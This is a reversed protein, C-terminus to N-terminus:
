FGDVDRPGAGGDAEADPRRSPDEVAQRWERKIERSKRYRRAALIGLALGLLVPIWVKSYGLLLIVWDPATFEPLSWAPWPIDIDPVPLDINPWPIDFEVDPLLSRLWDFVPRLVGLLIPVLLIGALAGGGKGPGATLPYVVRKWPSAAM